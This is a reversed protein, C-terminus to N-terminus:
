PVQVEPALAGIKNSCDHVPKPEYGEMEDFAM